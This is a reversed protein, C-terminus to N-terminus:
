LLLFFDFYLDCPFPRMDSLTSSFAPPIKVVKGAEAVVGWLDLLRTGNEVQNIFDIPGVHAISHRIHREWQPWRENNFGGPIIPSSLAADLPYGCDLLFHRWWSYVGPSVSDGGSSTSGSDPRALPKLAGVYANREAPLSIKRRVSHLRLARATRALTPFEQRLFSPSILVAPVDTRTLRAVEAEKIRSAHERFILSHRFWWRAYYINAKGEM